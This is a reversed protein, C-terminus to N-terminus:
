ALPLFTSVVPDRSKCFIDSSRCRRAESEGSSSSSSTDSVTDSSGGTTSTGSGGGDSEESSTEDSSSDGRFYGFKSNIKSKRLEAKRKM